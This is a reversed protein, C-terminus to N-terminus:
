AESLLVFASITKKKKKKKQKTKQKTKNKGCLVNKHYSCNTTPSFDWELDSLFVYFAVLLNLLSCLSM